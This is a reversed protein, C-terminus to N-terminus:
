IKRDFGRWRPCVSRLLRLGSPGPIDKEEDFAFTQSMDGQSPIRSSARALAQTETILKAPETFHGLKLKTKTPGLPKECDMSDLGHFPRAGCDTCGARESVFPKDYEPFDGDTFELM